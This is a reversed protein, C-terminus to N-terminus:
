IMHRACSAVPRSVPRTPGALVGINVRRQVAPRTYVGTFRGRAWRSPTKAQPGSGDPGSQVRQRYKVRALPNACALVAAKCKRGRNPLKGQMLLLSSTSSNTRFSGSSAEMNSMARSISNTAPTRSAMTSNSRPSLMEASCSRLSIGLHAPFVFYDEARARASVQFVEDAVDSLGATRRSHGFAESHGQNLLSKGEGSERLSPPNDGLQPERVHTFDNKFAVANHIPDHWVM